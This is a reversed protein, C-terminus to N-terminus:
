NQKYIVLGDREDGLTRIFMTHVDLSYIAREKRRIPHFILFPNVLSLVQNLLTAKGKRTFNRLTPDRRYAVNFRGSLM